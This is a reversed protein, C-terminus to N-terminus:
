EKLDTLYSRLNALDLVMDDTNIEADIDGRQVKVLIIVAEALVNNMKNIMSNGEYRLANLTQKANNSIEM